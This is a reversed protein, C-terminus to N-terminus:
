VGRHAEQSFGGERPAQEEGIVTKQINKAGQDARFQGGFQGYAINESDREITVNRGSTPRRARHGIQCM